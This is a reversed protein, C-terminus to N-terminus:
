QRAEILSELANPRDQYSWQDLPIWCLVNQGASDQDKSNHATYKKDEICRGTASECWLSVIRIIEAVIPSVISVAHYRNTLPGGVNTCHM